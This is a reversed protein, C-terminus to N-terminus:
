ATQLNEVRVIHLPPVRVVQNYVGHDAHRSVGIDFVTRAILVFDRHPLRYSKGDTLCIRSPVFPQLHMFAATRRALEMGCEYELAFGKYFDARGFRIDAPAL